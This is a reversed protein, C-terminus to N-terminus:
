GRQRLGAYNQLRGSMGANAKPELGQLFGKGRMMRCTKVFEKVKVQNLEHTICQQSNVALAYAQDRDLLFKRFDYSSGYLADALVWQPRMGGDFARGLMALGLEHKTQFIREGPIGAAERREEDACLEKPLYLERDM